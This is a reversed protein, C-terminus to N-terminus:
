KANMKRTYNHYSNTGSFKKFKKQVNEHLQPPIRYKYLKELNLETLRKQDVPKEVYDAAEAAM